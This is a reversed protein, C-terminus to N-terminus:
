ANFGCAALFRARDFRGNDRLLEACLSDALAKAFTFEKADAHEVVNVRFVNAILKYDKRTM